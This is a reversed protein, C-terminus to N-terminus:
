ISITFSRIFTLQYINPTYPTFNLSIKDWNGLQRDLSFKLKEGSILTKLIQQAESDPWNKIMRCEKSLTERKV